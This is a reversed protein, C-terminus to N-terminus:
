HGYLERGLVYTMLVATIAAIFPILRAAAEVPGTFLWSFAILGPFLPPRFSETGPANLFYGEGAIMNQALGLYVAEDWWLGQNTEYYVALPFASILLVLAVTVIELRRPSKM